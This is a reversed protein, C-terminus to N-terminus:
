KSAGAKRKERMDEIKAKIRAEAAGSTTATKTEVPAAGEVIKEVPALNEQPNGTPVQESQQVPPTTNKVASEKTEEESYFDSEGRKWPIDSAVIEETDVSVLQEALWEVPLPNPTKLARLDVVHDAWDTPVAIKNDKCPFVSYKTALGSGTKIISIESGNDVDSIIGYEGKMLNLLDNFLNVGFELIKFRKEPDREDGDIVNVVTRNKAVLDGIKNKLKKLGKMNQPETEEMKKAEEKLVEVLDCLPCSTAIKADPDRLCTFSRLKTEGTKEDVIIKFSHNRFEKFPFRATGDAGKKMPVLRRRNEGAVLRDFNLKSDGFSNIRAVAQSTRESAENILDKVADNTM